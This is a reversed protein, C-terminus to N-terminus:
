WTREFPVRPFHDGQLQDGEKLGPDGVTRLQFNGERFTCRESVWRTTHARRRVTASSNGRTAHPMWMHHALCDGPQVDWSMLLEGGDVVEFDPCRELELGEAPGVKVINVYSGYHKGRHQGRAYMMGGTAVTAPDLPMWLTLADEGNLPWSAGDQHWSTPTDTGPEKVLVQDYLLAVHAADLLRAAIAAAPSEFAYERFGDREMWVYTDATFRGGTVPAEIHRVGPRQLVDETAARLREVWEMSFANRLCVVGDRVFAAVESESIPANLRSTM